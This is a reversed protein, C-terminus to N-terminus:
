AMKSKLPDETIFICWNTDVIRPAGKIGTPTYRANICLAEILLISDAIYMKHSSGLLAPWCFKTM